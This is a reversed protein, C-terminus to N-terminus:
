RNNAGTGARIIFNLEHRARHDGHRRPDPLMAPFGARRSAGPSMGRLFTRVGCPAITPLAWRETDRHAARIPVTGCFIFRRLRLAQTLDATLTFRHPLLEGAPRTVPRARYVGDPALGFLPATDDGLGRGFAAAVPRGSGDRSGPLDSSAGPLRRGLSITM